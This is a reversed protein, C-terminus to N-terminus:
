PSSTEILLWVRGLLWKCTCRTAAPFEGDLVIPLQSDFEDQLEDVEENKPWAPRPLASAEGEAMANSSVFRLKAFSSSQSQSRTAVPCQPLVLPSPSAFGEIPSSTPQPQLQRLSHALDKSAEAAEAQKTQMCMPSSCLTRQSTSGQYNQSPSLRPLVKM